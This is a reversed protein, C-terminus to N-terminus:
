QCCCLPSRDETPRLLRATVRRKTLAVALTREASRLTSRRLEGIRSGTSRALSREECRAGSLSSVFSTEAELVVDYLHCRTKELLLRRVPQGDFYGYIEHKPGHALIARAARLEDSFLQRADRHARWWKREARAQRQAEATM